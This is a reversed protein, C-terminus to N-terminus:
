RSWDPDLAWDVLQRRHSGDSAMLWASFRSAGPWRAFAIQSGDSSWSPHMGNGLSRARGGSAPMRFVGGDPGTFAITRGDPSWAPERGYLLHRRGSGDLRQVVTEERGLAYPKTWAIRASDPSWAPSSAGARTGPLLHNHSGDPRVLRIGSMSAYAIWRGNPAWAAGMDFSGSTVRRAHSGDARMIYVHTSRRGDTSRTFAILRRDPSWEPESDRWGRHDTLAREGRGNAQTV